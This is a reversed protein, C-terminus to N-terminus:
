AESAAATDGMNRRIEIALVVSAAFTLSGTVVHAVSIVLWATTGTANFMRLLFTFMGLFAQVGTTVLLRVAIPRLTPHKPFQSTAFVGVIMLLVATVIAGLLHPIVGVANHRIGAGLVVQVAVLFSAAASLFRLSPRGSDQVLDPDRQSSRSTLLSVASLTAVLFAAFAAHLIGAVPGASAKLLYGLWIEFLLAVLVIWGIRAIDPRAFRAPDPRTFRSFAIVLGITLLGVAIALAGHVILLWVRREHDHSSTIAAGSAVLVLM